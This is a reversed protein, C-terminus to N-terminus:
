TPVETEAIYPKNEYIQRLLWFRLFRGFSYRLYVFGGTLAVCLGAIALIIHENHELNDLALNGSAQSDAVFYAVFSLLTGAVMLLAGFVQLIKERNSSATKLKLSRIENRFETTRPQEM